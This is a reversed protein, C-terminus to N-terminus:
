KHELCDERSCNSCVGICKTKPTAKEKYRTIYEEITENTIFSNLAYRSKQQRTRRKYYLIRSIRNRLKDPSIESKIIREVISTEIAYNVCIREIECRRERDAAEAQQQKEM